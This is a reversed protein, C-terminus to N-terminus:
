KINLKIAEGWENIDVRFQVLELLNMLVITSLRVLWKATPTHQGTIAAYCNRTKGTMGEAGPLGFPVLLVHPDSVSQWLLKWSNARYQVSVIAGQHIARRELRDKVNGTPQDFM